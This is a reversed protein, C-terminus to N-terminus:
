RNRCKIHHSSSITNQRTTQRTSYSLSPHLASTAIFTSHRFIFKQRFTTCAFINNRVFAIKYILSHDMTLRHRDESKLLHNERVWGGLSPPPHCGTFPHPVCHTYLSVGLTPNYYVTLTCVSVWYLTYYVTLTCAPM